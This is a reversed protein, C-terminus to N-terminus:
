AMKDRFILLITEKTLGVLHIDTFECYTILYDKVEEVINDSDFREVEAPAEVKIEEILADIVNIGTPLVETAQGRQLLYQVVEAFIAARKEDSETPEPAVNM